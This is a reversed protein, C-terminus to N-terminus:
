PDRAKPFMQRGQMDGSFGGSCARLHPGVQNACKASLCDSLLSKVRFDIFRDRLIVTAKFLRDLAM